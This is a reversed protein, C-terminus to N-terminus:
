KEAITASPQLAWRWWSRNGRATAARIAPRAAPAAVSYRLGVSEIRSWLTLVGARVRIVVPPAPGRPRGALCKKALARFTRAVDRPIAIM